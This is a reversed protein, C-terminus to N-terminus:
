QAWFDAWLSHCNNYIAGTYIDLNLPFLSCGLETKEKRTTHNCCLNFATSSYCSFHQVTGTLINRLESNPSVTYQNFFAGTVRNTSCRATVCSTTLEVGAPGFSLTMFIVSSFTSGKYNCGCITLSELRRPYPSYVTPGTECIDETNM